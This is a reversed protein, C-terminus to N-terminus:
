CTQTTVTISSEAMQSEADALANTMINTTVDLVFLNHLRSIVVRYGNTIISQELPAQMLSESRVSSM